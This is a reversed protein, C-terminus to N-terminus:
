TSTPATRACPLLGVAHAAGGPGPDSRGRLTADVLCYPREPHRGAAVEAESRAVEAFTGGVHLTVAQRCARGAWPVPGSSRGTSRASGPGTASASSLAAAYRPPLRDGALELLQRPTVDLLTADPRRSTTSARRGLPRDRDPRRAVRARRGACRRHGRQRGRRRALGARPGVHHVALAFAGSLPADLPLMSHAAAGAIIARAEDTRFRSRWDSPRHLAASGSAGDAVPHRPVSRMPGLFDPLIEDANRVLPAFLARTPPATRGLVRRTEAVTGGVGAGRGGTSRTPSPWRPTLLRVGDGSLDIDRFFPLGPAASPGGLLRRPPVRAPDAGRDPLWRRTTRARSLRRRGARRPGAHVRRGAREARAWSSPM